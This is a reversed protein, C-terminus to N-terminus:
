RKKLSTLVYTSGDQRFSFQVDSGVEIGGAIKAPATFTMSMAPWGIGEIPGHAITVQDGAIATIKGAGSYVQGQDAMQGQNATPAQEAKGCGAVAAFLAAVALLALTKM